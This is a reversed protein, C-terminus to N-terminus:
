PRGTQEVRRPLRRELLLHAVLEGKVKFAARVIEDPLPETWLVCTPSRPQLKAADLGELFQSPIRAARAHEFVQDPVDPVGEASKPLEASTSVQTRDSPM